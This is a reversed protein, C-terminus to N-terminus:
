RHNPHSLARVSFSHLCQQSGSRFILLVTNALPGPRFFAKEADDFSHSDCFDMKRPIPIEFDAMDRFENWM